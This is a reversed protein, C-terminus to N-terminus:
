TARQKKGCRKLRLKVMVNKKTEIRYKLSEIIFDHMTM